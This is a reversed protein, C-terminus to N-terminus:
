SQYVHTQNYPHFQLSRPVQPNQLRKPLDSIINVIKELNQTNEEIEAELDELPVIAETKLKKVVLDRKKSEIQQKLKSFCAFSATENAM